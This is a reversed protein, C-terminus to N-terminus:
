YSWLDHETTFLQMKIRDSEVLADVGRAYSGITRNYVNEEKVVFSSFLRKQFLDEFTIRQSGNKLNFVDFNVFTYRCSPYYVWFLKKYGRKSGDENFQEMMPCIGIIRVYRESRQRDFIWDEKIQYQTILDSTVPNPKTETIPEGTDPDDYTIETIPNLLSDLQDHTMPFRFEDDDDTPGLSYATISGDMLAAYKIVDFLSKRDDIPEIPYYLAHNMKERLDIVQWIRKAWMVDAERLHPYPIVRKTLNHEKVYAGDLVTQTQSYSSLFMLLAAALVFIKKM